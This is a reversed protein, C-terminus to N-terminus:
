FRPFPSTDPSRFDNRSHHVPRRARARRRVARPWRAAATELRPSAFVSSDADVLPQTPDGLLDRRCLVLVRARRRGRSRRDARRDLEALHQLSREDGGLCQRRDVTAAHLTRREFPVDDLGLHPASDVLTDPSRELPRRIPHGEDRSNRRHSVSPGPPRLVPRTTGRPRSPRPVSERRRGGGGRTRHRPRPCGQWSRREPRARWGSRSGSRSTWSRAAVSMSVPRPLGIAKM